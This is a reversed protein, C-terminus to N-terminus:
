RTVSLGAVGATVAAPHFLVGWVLKVKEPAPVFVAYAQAFSEAPFTDRLRGAVVVIVRGPSPEHPVLLPPVNVVM